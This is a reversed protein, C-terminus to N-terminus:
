RVISPGGPYPFKMGKPTAGPVSSDLVAKILLGGVVASHIMYVVLIKTLKKKDWFAHFDFNDLLNDMEESM